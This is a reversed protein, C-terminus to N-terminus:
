GCKTTWGLPPLEAERPDPRQAKKGVVFPPPTNLDAVDKALTNCKEELSDVAKKVM